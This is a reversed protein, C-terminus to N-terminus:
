ADRERDQAGPVRGVGRRPRAIAPCARLASTTDSIPDNIDLRRLLGSACEPILMWSDTRKGPRLHVAAVLQEGVTKRQWHISCSWHRGCLRELHWQLEAATVHWPIASDAALEALQVTSQEEGAHQDWWSDVLNAMRTALGLSESTPSVPPSEESLESIEREGALTDTSYVPSSTCTNSDIEEKGTELLSIPMDSHEELIADAKSRAPRQALRARAKELYPQRIM